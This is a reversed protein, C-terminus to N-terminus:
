GGVGSGCCQWVGEVVSGNGCCSWGTPPISPPGGRPDDIKVFGLVIAATKFGSSKDVQEVTYEAEDDDWSDGIAIALDALGTLAYTRIVFQGGDTSANDVREEGLLSMAVTQADRAEGPVFDRGGGPKAIIENRPVLIVEFGKFKLLIDIAKKAANLVAANTTVQPM